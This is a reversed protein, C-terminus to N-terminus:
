FLVASLLDCLLTDKHGQPYAFIEQVPSFFIEKQERLVFLFIPLTLLM